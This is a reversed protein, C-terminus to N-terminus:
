SSQLLLHRTNRVRELTHAYHKECIAVTNGLWSAVTHLAIGKEIHRVAFTHRYSYPIVPHTIKAETFRRQMYQNFVDPQIKNGNISRFLLGTGYRDVRRVIIAEADDDLLISRRKGKQITKHHHKVIAHEASRYESVESSLIEDPRAGTAYLVAAIDRYPQKCLPLVRAQEEPTIVYEEGRILAQPKRTAKIPNKSVYDNNILWNYAASVNKCANCKSTDNWKTHQQLWRQVMFPKIAVPSMTGFEAIYDNIIRRRDLQAKYCGVNGNEKLYIGMLVGVTAKADNQDASQDKINTEAALADLLRQAEEETTLRDGLYKPKGNIRVYWRQQAKHRCLTGIRTM